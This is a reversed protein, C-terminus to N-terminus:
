PLQIRLAAAAITYPQGSTTTFACTARAWFNGGSAADWLGVHTVSISSAANGLPIGASNFTERIDGSSAIAAWASSAIAVRGAAVVSTTIDTGSTGARGPNSSYFALYLTAPPTPATTGRFLGLMADRLYTSFDAM